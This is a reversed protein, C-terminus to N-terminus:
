WNYNITLDSRAEEVKIALDEIITLLGSHGDDIPDYEITKLNRNNRLSLKLEDPDGQARIIYHPYNTPFSFAQNELVLNVDPDSHGTGIFLFTNSLLGADFSRYFASHKVQAEAYDKQTFILKEPADISGHVKVIFRGDGRLFESSGRDYYQRIIHAGAKLNQACREYITDFNLSFVVRSDLSLIARHTDSPEFGPESFTRRLYGNWNEDFSKKLWECAHLLDNSKIASVIAPSVGGPCANCADQLFAKWTPPRLGAANTSQRSVGSGLIIVVRRRALDRVLSDPWDIM